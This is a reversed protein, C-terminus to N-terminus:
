LVNEQAADGSSPIEWVPRLLRETLSPGILTILVEHFNQLLAANAAVAEFSDQRALVTQLVALDDSPSGNENVAHLCPHTTRTLYVSRKFLADVGSHGIIPTLAEAVDDWISVAIEAIRV